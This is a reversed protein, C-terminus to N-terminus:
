SCGFGTIWGGGRTSFTGTGFRHDAPRADGAAPGASASTARGVLALVLPLTATRGLTAVVALVSRHPADRDLTV